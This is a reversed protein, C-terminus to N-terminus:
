RTRTPSRRSRRPPVSSATSFIWSPSPRRDDTVLRSGTNAVAKDLRTLLGRPLHLHTLNEEYCRILRPTQHTSLRLRQREYFLPNHLSALHKLETLLSPPLDAKAIALDAGITCRIQSPLREDQQRRPRRPSIAALGVAVDEHEALLHELREPTLRELSGLFASQDPWPELTAPDLFVSTGAARCRGQLPLAILNGFGKAPLFDQNPFLRDYSALDLEGRRRMAARLLLAGLRRAASAPVAAAFFIWVHAGSGSRSRELAAPVGHKTCAQLLALADLQWTRGDLDCALFWCSDDTLLPYVGISERGRLHREIAEDSVPLYTKPGHRSWGGAVAPAYGSKGTRTSEWRAAYVDDRGRFLRRVRAVKEDASAPGRTDVPPREPKRADLITQTQQALSLLTRLRENEARLQELECLVRDLRHQLHSGSM